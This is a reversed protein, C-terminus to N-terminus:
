GEEANLRDLALAPRTALRRLGSRIRSKVTGLPLSLDRAIQRYTLDGFFALAIPVREREPLGQLAVFAREGRSRAEVLAEPGAQDAHRLDHIRLQRRRLAGEQALWDLARSHTMRALWPRLPGLEPRYKEPHEWLSVMVLQVVDEAAQRNRTVSFAVGM